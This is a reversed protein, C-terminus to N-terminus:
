GKSAKCLKGNRKFVYLIFVTVDYMAVNTFESSNRQFLEKCFSKYKVFIEHIYVKFIVIYRLYKKLKIHRTSVPNHM